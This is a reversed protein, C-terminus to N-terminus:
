NDSKFQELDVIETSNDTGGILKDVDKQVEIYEEGGVQFIFHPVMTKGESVRYISEMAYNDTLVIGLTNTNHNLFLQVNHKSKKAEEYLHMIDYGVVDHIKREYYGKEHGNKRNLASIIDTQKYDEIIFTTTKGKQSIRETFLAPNGSIFSKADNMVIVVRKSNIFDERYKKIKL